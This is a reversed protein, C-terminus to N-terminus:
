MSAAPQRPSSPLPIQQVCDQPQSRARPRQLGPTVPSWHDAPLTRIAARRPHDYTFVPNRHEARARQDAPSPTTRALCRHPGRRTPMGQVARVTGASVAAGLPFPVHQCSRLSRNDCRACPMEMGGAARAENPPLSPESRRAAPHRLEHAVEVLGDVACFVQLHSPLPDLIM